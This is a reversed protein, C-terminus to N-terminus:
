QGLVAKAWGANIEAKKATAKEIDLPKIQSAAPMKSAVDAPLAIDAVSPRVYGQAFIKQGEDSLIFNLWLKGANPNPGNKV